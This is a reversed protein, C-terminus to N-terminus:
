RMLDAPAREQVRIAHGDDHLVVTREIAIELLAEHVVLAIGALVVFGIGCGFSLWHVTVGAFCRSAVITWVALLTLAVDLVRQALGRGPMAFAVLVVATVCCGVAFGLWAVTRPAFGLAASTLFAGALLTALNSSFRATM